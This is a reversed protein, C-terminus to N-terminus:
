GARSAFGKVALDEDGEVVGHRLCLLEAGGPLGFEGAVDDVSEKVQGAVVVELGGGAAGHLAFFVTQQLFGGGM